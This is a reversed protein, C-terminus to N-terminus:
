WPAQYRIKFSTEQNAIDDDPGPTQTNSGWPSPAISIGTDRNRQYHRYSQSRQGDFKKRFIYKNIFCILGTM